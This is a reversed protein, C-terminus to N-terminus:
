IGEDVDVAVMIKEPLPQNLIGTLNGRNAASGGNVVRSNLSKQQDEVRVVEESVRLLQPVFPAYARAKQVGNSTGRDNKFDNNDRLVHRYNESGCGKLRFGNTIFRGNSADIASSTSANSSLRRLSLMQFDRQGLMFNSAAAMYRGGLHRFRSVCNGNCSIALWSRRKIMGIGWVNMLVDPM